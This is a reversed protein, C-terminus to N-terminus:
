ETINMEKLEKKKLHQMINNRRYERKKDKEEEPVNNYKGQAQKSLVLEKNRQYYTLYATNAMIIYRSFFYYNKLADIKVLKKPFRDLFHHICM